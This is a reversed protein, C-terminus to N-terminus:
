PVPALDASAEGAACWLAGGALVFGVGLLAGSAALALPSATALLGAPLAALWCAAPWRLVRARLLSVALGSLAFLFVGAGVLYWDVGFQRSDPGVISALGAVALLFAGHGLRGLNAQVHQHVAMLGILLGVDILAYLGQLAVSRPDYPIISAAVRLGGALIASAAGIRARGKM